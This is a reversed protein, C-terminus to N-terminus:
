GLYIRSIKTLEKNEVLLMGMKKELYGGDDNDDDDPHKILSWIIQNKTISGINEVSFALRFIYCLAKKVNETIRKETM